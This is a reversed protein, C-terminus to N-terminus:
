WWYPIPYEIHDESWNGIRTKHHYKPGGTLQQPTFMMKAKFRTLNPLGPDSSAWSSGIQVASSLPIEALLFFVSSLLMQLLLGGNKLHM